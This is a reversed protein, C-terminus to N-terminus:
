TLPSIIFPASLKIIPNSIENYGCTNKARLSKIIKEMKYTPAYQWSM